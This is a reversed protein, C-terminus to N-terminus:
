GRLAYVGRGQRVVQGGAVVSALVMSAHGRNIKLAKVVEPTGFPKGRKAAWEILKAGHSGERPGSARKAKRGAKRGRKAAPKAAPAGSKAGGGLNITLSKNAKIAALVEDSMRISLTATM